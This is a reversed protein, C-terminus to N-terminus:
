GDYEDRAQPEGAVAIPDWMYHLIEEVRSLLRKDQPSLKM